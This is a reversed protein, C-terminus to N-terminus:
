LQGMGKYVNRTCDENKQICALWGFYPKHM